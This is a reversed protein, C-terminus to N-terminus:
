MSKSHISISISPMNSTQIYVRSRCTAIKSIFYYFLSISITLIIIYHTITLFFDFLQTLHQSFLVFLSYIFIFIFFKILFLKCINQYM